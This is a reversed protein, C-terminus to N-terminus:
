VAVFFVTRLSSERGSIVPGEDDGDDLLVSAGALGPACPADIMLLATSGRSCPGGESEAASRGSHLGNSSYMGVDSEGRSAVTARRDSTASIRNSVIGDSVTNFFVHSEFVGYPSGRM